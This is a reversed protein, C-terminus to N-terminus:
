HDIIHQSIKEVVDESHNNDLNDSAGSSGFVKGSKTADNLFGHIKNGIKTDRLINGTITKASNTMEHGFEKASDVM